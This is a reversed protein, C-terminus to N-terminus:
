RRRGRIPHATVFRPTERGYDIFWVTRIRARHGSPSGIWGDVVYRVGFEAATEYLVDNEVAHTTLQAALSAPTSQDFGLSRFFAAKAKGRPHTASLLYGLIKDIPITALHANPLKMPKLFGPGCFHVPTWETKLGM